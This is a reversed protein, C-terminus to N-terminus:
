FLIFIKKFIIPNADFIIRLIFIRSSYQKALHFFYHNGQEKDKQGDKQKDGDTSRKRSGKFLFYNFTM